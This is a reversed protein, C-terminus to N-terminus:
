VDLGALLFRNKCIRISPTELAGSTFISTNKRTVSKLVGRLFEPNLGSFFITSPLACVIEVGKRKKECSGGVEGEYESRARREVVGEVEGGERPEVSPTVTAVLPATPLTGGVALPPPAQTAPLPVSSM